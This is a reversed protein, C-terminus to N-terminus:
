KYDIKGDESAVYKEWEDDSYNFSIYKIGGRGVGYIYNEAGYEIQKGKLEATADNMMPILMYTGLIAGELAALVELRESVLESYEDAFFTSATGDAAKIIIEEGGTIAEAWDLVSATYDVGNLNVTLMEDATNWSRNYRHQETTYARMLGYPNLAFGPWGVGFLMDVRNDRLADSFERGLTDDKTFRLRGELKTGKVAETYCETLFEYGNTYFDTMGDPLGIMIEVVDTDTMLGDAVAKDYARDFYYKAMAPNYGTDNRIADDYDAYRKGPGIEDEVGLIKVMVKKASENSRYVEGSEPNSIILDSFLTLAPNNTSSVALVFAKRDLAFSLGRRFDEISLITKNINDGAEEQRMKLAEEDPNMAIFFTSPSVTYYTYKSSQYDVMDYPALQYEDLKGELFLDREALSDTVYDYQIRTAQYPYDKIAHSMENKELVYQRGNEFSVLKYPGYSITTEASTCYTNGECSKYLETNILWSSTLSNLLDFGSVPRESVLILETDSPAFVGVESFEVAKRVSGCVVMEQAELYAFDGVVLAYQEVGEYDHLDAICNCLSMYLEPTLKVYGDEDAAAVLAAYDEASYNIYGAAAYEAIGNTGWNGGDYINVALEGKPCTYQGDPNIEFDSIAIYEDDGYAESVLENYAYKGQYLYNKANVITLPGSCLTEVHHNQAEPDLLLKASEVFDAAVIKTGDEWMLDNRLTIKVARDTDKESIDFQGVYQSTVDEPYGVAMDPVLKYGDKAENFDFQYFGATIYSIVNSYDADASYNFVSWNTPFESLAYNMTYEKDEEPVPTAVVDNVVPQTVEPAKTPEKQVDSTSEGSPTPGPENVDGNNKGCAAISLVMTTALMIALFKKGKKM